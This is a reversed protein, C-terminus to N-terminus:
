KMPLEVATMFDLLIGDSGLNVKVILMDMLMSTPLLFRQLVVIVYM